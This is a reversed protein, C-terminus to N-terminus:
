GTASQGALEADVVGFVLRGCDIGFQFWGANTRVYDNDNNANDAATIWHGRRDPL